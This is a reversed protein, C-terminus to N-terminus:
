ENSRVFILSSCIALLPRGINQARKFLTLITLIFGTKKSVPWDLAPESKERRLDAKVEAYKQCNIRPSFKVFKFEIQLKENKANLAPTTADQLVQCHDTQPEAEPDHKENLRTVARGLWCHCNLTLTNTQAGRMGPLDM